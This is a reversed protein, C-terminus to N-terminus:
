LAGYRYLLWGIFLVLIFYYTSWGKTAPFQRSFIRFNKRWWKGNTGWALVNAGASDILLLYFIIVEIDM